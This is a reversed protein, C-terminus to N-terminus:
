HPYALPFPKTPIVLHPCALPFAELATLRIYEYPLAKLRRHVSAIARLCLFPRVSRRVCVCVCVCVPVCMWVQLRVRVCVFVCVCVRVCAYLFVCLCARVRVCARARACGCRNNSAKIARLTACESLEPPLSLLLNSGFDVEQGPLVTM